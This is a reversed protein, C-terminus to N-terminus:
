PILQCFAAENRGRFMERENKEGEGYMNTIEQLSPTNFRSEQQPGSTQQEM